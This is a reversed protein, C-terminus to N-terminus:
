IFPQINDVYDDVMSVTPIRVAECLHKAILEKDIDAPEVPAVPKTEPKNALTRILMVLFLLLLAGAISGLVIGVIAGTTM